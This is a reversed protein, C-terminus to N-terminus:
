CCFRSKAEAQVKDRLADPVYELAYSVNRVAAICLEETILENPVFKIAVGDQQVAALCLAETKLAGPVFELTKGNQQVAALCIEETKLEDPLYHVAFSVELFTPHEKLCFEESIPGRNPGRNANIHQIQFNRLWEEQEKNLEM